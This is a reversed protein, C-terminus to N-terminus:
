RSKAPYLVLANGEPPEPDDGADARGRTGARGSRRGDARRRRGLHDHVRHPPGRAPRRLERRLSRRADRRDHRHSRHRAPRPGRRLGCRRRRAHRHPLAGGRCRSRFARGQSLVRGQRAGPCYRALRAPCRRGADGRRLGGRGRDGPSGGDVRHVRAGDRRMRQRHHGLARRRHPAPTRAARPAVRVCREPERHRGSRAAPSPHRPHHHVDRLIRHRRQVCRSLQPWPHADREGTRDRGDAAPSGCWRRRDGCLGVLVGRGCGRGSRRM